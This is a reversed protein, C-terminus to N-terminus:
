HDQNSPSDVLLNILFGGIIGSMVLGFKLTAPIKVRKFLYRLEDEILEDHELPKLPIKSPTSQVLAPPIVGRNIIHSSNPTQDSLQDLVSNLHNRYKRKANM